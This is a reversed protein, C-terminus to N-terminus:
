DASAFWARVSPSLLCAYAILNILITVIGGPLRFFGFAINILLLVQLILPLYPTRNLALAIFWFYFLGLIMCLLGSILLFWPPLEVSSSNATSVKGLALWVGLGIFFTGGLGALLCIVIVNRPPKAIKSV